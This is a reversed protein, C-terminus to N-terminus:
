AVGCLAPPLWAWTVDWRAFREVAMVEQLEDPTLAGRDLFAYLALPDRRTKLRGADCADCDASHDLYSPADGDNDDDWRACHLCACATDLTLELKENLDLLYRGENDRYWSV